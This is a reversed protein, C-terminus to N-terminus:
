APLGRSSRMDQRTASFARPGSGGRRAADLAELAAALETATEARVIRRPADFVAPFGGPGNEILIM